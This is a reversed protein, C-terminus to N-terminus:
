EVPAGHPRAEHPDPIRGLIVAVRKIIESVAQVLLLVFGGVIMAKAPWVILGGYNSSAEGIEYSELMWPWAEKLMLVTFPVLMALHGFMEIGNRLGRPLANSVIDIRIHENRQLTYAAGLLYAAGFLYWQAELWANSSLDFLKRSIANGASVLVAALILWTVLRGILGTVRDIGRSLSLLADM